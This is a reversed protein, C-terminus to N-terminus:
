PDNLNKHFLNQIDQFTEFFTKQQRPKKNEENVPEYVPLTVEEESREVEDYKAEESPQSKEIEKEQEPM